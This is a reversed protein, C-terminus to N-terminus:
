YVQNIAKPAGRDITLLLPKSRKRRSISRDGEKVPGLDLKRSWGVRKGIEFTLRNMRIRRKGSAKRRRELRVAQLVTL